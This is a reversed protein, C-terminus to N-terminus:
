PDVSRMFGLVRRVYVTTEGNDPVCRCTNVAGEGANYAALALELNGAYVALLRRLEAIGGRLNQEADFPDAVALRAAASPMLQMLGMAGMASVAAPNWNSEAAIVSKVLTPDLGAARALREVAPALAVMGAPLSAPEDGPCRATALDRPLPRGLQQFQLRHLWNAALEPDYDPGHETLLWGSVTLIASRDGLRAARCYLAMARRADPETGLGLQLRSAEDLLAQQAPSGGSDRASGKAAASFDGVIFTLAAVVLIPWSRWPM